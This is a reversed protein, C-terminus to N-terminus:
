APTGQAAAPHTEVAALVARQAAAVASGPEVPRGFALAVEEM